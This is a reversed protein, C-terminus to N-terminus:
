KTGRRQNNPEKKAKLIAKAKEAAQEEQIKKQDTTLPKSNVAM